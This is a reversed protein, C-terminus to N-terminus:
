LRTLFVPLGERGSLEPRYQETDYMTSVDVSRPGLGPDPIPVMAYRGDSIAAMLG